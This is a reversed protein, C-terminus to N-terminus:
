NDDSKKLHCKLDSSFPPLSSTHLISLNLFLSGLIKMWRFQDELIFTMFSSNGGRLFEPFITRM